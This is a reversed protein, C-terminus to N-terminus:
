KESILYIDQPLRQEADTILVDVAVLWWRIFSTGKWRRGDHFEILTKHKECISIIM